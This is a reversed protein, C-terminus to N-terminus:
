GRGSLDDSREELSCARKELLHQLRKGGVREALVHAVRELVHLRVELRNGLRDDLRMEEIDHVAGAPRDLRDFDDAREAGCGDALREEAPDDGVFMGGAFLHHDLNEARVDLRDDLVLAAAKDVRRLIRGAHLFREFSLIRANEFLQVERLLLGVDIEPAVDVFLRHHDAGVADKRRIRVRNRHVTEMRHLHMREHRRRHIREDELLRRALGVVTEHRVRTRRHAFDHAAGIGGALREEAVGGAEPRGLGLEDMEVVIRLRALVIQQLEGLLPHLFREVAVAEVVAVEMRAVDHGVAFAKGDDVEAVGRVERLVLAHVHELHHGRGHVPAFAVELIRELREDGFRAAGDVVALVRVALEGAFQVLNEVLTRRGVGSPANEGREHAQLAM